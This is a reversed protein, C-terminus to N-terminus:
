AAAQVAPAPLLVLQLRGVQLQIVLLDHVQQRGLARSLQRDPLINALLTRPTYTSPRVSTCSSFPPPACLRGRAASQGARDQCACPCGATYTNEGAKVAHAGAGHTICRQRHDETQPAAGEIMGREIDCSQWHSYVSKGQAPRCGPLPIEGCRVMSFDYHLSSPSLNGCPHCTCPRRMIRMILFSNIAPMSAHNQHLKFAIRETCHMISLLHHLPAQRPAPRILRLHIRLAAARVCHQRQVELGASACVQAQQATFDDRRLRISRAPAGRCRM